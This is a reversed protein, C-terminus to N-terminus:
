DDQRKLKQRLSSPMQLNLRKREKEDRTIIYNQENLVDVMERMTETTAEHEKTQVEHQEDIRDSKKEMTQTVGTIMQTLLYGAGALAAVVIMLYITEKGSIKWQQGMFSGALM